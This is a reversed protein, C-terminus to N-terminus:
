RVNARLLGSKTPVLTANEGGVDAASRYQFIAQYLYQWRNSRYRFVKRTEASRPAVAAASVRAFLRPEGRVLAVRPSLCVRRQLLSDRAFEDRSLCFERSAPFICPFEDIRAELM